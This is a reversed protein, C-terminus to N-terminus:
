IPDVRALVSPTLKKLAQFYPRSIKGSGLREQRLGRGSRSYGRFEKRLHKNVLEEM